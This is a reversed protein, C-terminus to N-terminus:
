FQFAAAGEKTKWQLHRWGCPIYHSVDNSDLVRHGGSSSVSVVVPHDIRISFGDGFTYERYEELDISKFKMKTDDTTQKM